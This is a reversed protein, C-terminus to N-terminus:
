EDKWMVTVVKIEPPSHWPIAVIRVIRPGEPSRSEIKYKFCNRQTAQEPEDYVFGHKLVHLVDGVILNREAMQSSAHSSLDLTFDEDISISRIADTADGPKWPQLKRRAASQSM